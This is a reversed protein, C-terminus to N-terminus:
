IHQFLNLKLQFQYFYSFCKIITLCKLMITAAGRLQVIHGILQGGSTSSPDVKCMYEGGDKHTANKIILDSHVVMRRSDDIIRFGDKYRFM